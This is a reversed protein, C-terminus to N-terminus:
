NNLGEGGAIVARPNAIVLALYGQSFGRPTSAFGDVLFGFGHAGLFNCVAIIYAQKGAFATISAQDNAYTAGAAVSPSTFSVAAAPTGDANTPYLDLKCTGSQEPLGKGAGFSTDDLTTNAISLGTNFGAQNTVFPFLM